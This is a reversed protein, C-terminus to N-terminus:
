LSCLKHVVKERRLMLQCSRTATLLLTNFLQFRCDEKFKAGFLLIAPYNAGAFATAAAAM